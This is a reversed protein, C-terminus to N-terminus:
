VERVLKETEPVVLGQIDEETTCDEFGDIKHKAYVFGNTNLSFQSEIGRADKINVLRTDVNKDISSGLAEAGPQTFDITYSQDKGNFYNLSADVHRSGVIAAPM